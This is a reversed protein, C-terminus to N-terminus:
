LSAIWLRRDAKGVATQAFGCGNDSFAKPNVRADDCCKTVSSVGDFDLCGDSLEEAIIAFANPADKCFGEGM